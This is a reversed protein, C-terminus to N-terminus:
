LQRLEHVLVVRQRLKRMLATQRGKTRATKGTLACTELDAIDVVGMVAAHARDLGWFARVDTKDTRKSCICADILEAEHFRRVAADIFLVMAYRVFDAVQRGIFLIFEDDCLGVLREVIILPKDVLTNRCAVVFLCAQMCAFRNVVHVDARTLDERNSRRHNWEEFVIIRVTGQHTRVHLTLSNREQARLSRENTRAHLVLCGAVRTDHDKGLMGTDDLFDRCVVDIDARFIAFEIMIFQLFEQTGVLTGADVLDRNDIFAIFYLLLLRNSITRSCVVAFESEAVVDDNSVHRPFTVVVLISDKQRLIKDLAIDVRGDMDFFVFTIGTVRLEPRFFDRAVDRINGFIGELVEVFFANDRNTSVYTWAIDEDAFDRRFALRLERSLFAQQASDEALLCAFNAVRRQAYRVALLALNDVDLDEAALVVILQRWTDVTEHADVDSLLTLNGDTILHCATM